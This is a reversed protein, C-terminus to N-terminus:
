QRVLSFWDLNWRNGFWFHLKEELIEFWDGYIGKSRMWFNMADQLISAEERRKMAYNRMEIVYCAARKKRETAWHDRNCCGYIPLNGDDVETEGTKHREVHDRKKGKNWRYCRANCKYSIQNFKVEVEHFQILDCIHWKYDLQSLKCCMTFTWKVYNTLSTPM